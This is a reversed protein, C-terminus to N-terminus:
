SQLQGMYIAVQMYQTKPNRTQLVKLLVSARQCDAEEGRHTLAARLVATSM